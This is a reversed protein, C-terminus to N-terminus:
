RPEALSSGAAVKSVFAGSIRASGGWWATKTSRRRLGKSVAKSRDEHGELGSFAPGELAPQRRMDEICIIIEYGFVLNSEWM